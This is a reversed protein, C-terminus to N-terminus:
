FGFFGSISDVATDVVSDFLTKKKPKDTGARSRYEEVMIRADLYHIREHPTITEAEDDWGSAWFRDTMELFHAEGKKLGDTDKLFQKYRPLLDYIAMMRAGVHMQEHRMTQDYYNFNRVAHDESFAQIDGDYKDWLKEMLPTFEEVFNESTIYPSYMTIVFEPRLCGLTVRDDDSVSYDIYLKSATSGYPNTAGKKKTQVTVKRKAVSCAGDADGTKQPEIRSDLKEDGWSRQLRAQLVPARSIMPTANATQAPTALYRQLAQNGITRQLHLLQRSSSSVALSSAPKAPAAHAPPASSRIRKM